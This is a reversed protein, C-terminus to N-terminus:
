KQRNRMFDPHLIAHGCEHAETFRFRGEHGDFEMQQYLGQDIIITNADVCTLEPKFTTMNFTPFKMNKFVTVGLYCQCHSLYLFDLTFGLFCEIFRDLDLPRPKEIIDPCFQLAIEDALLEIEKGTLDPLGNKLKPFEPIKAKRM